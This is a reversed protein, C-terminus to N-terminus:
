GTGARDPEATHQLFRAEHYADLIRAREEASLKNSPAPRGAESRADVLVAGEGLVTWRRFTRRDIGAERCAKSVASSAEVTENILTAALTRDEISIM